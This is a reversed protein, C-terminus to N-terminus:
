EKGIKESERHSDWLSVGATEDETLEKRWAETEPDDSEGEWFAYLESVRKDGISLRLSLDQIANGCGLRCLFDSIAAAAGRYFERQKENLCVQSAMSLYTEMCSRAEQQIEEKTFAEVSPLGRLDDMVVDPDIKEDLHFYASFWEIAYKRSIHDTYM